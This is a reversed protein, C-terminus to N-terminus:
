IRIVELAIKWGEKEHRWIRLYSGTKGAQDITGYVAAMDAAPSIKVGVPHYQLSSIRNLIAVASDTSTLPSRDTINLIYKSSAMNHYGRSISQEFSHIFTNEQSIINSENTNKAARYKDAAVTVPYNDLLQNSHSNGIDFLYKWQGNEIRHWVTTYQGSEVVSDSLRKPRHLYNGTTYGWNGSVSMEAFSPSWSFIGDFVPQSQWFKKAEVPGKGTFQIGNSDVHALFGDRIGNELCSKEFDKEAKILAETNQAKVHSCLLIVTCLLVSKIM